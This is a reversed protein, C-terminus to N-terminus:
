GLCSRYPIRRTNRRQCVDPRPILCPLVHRETVPMGAGLVRGGTQAHQALFLTDFSRMGAQEFLHGQRM